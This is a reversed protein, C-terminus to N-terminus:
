EEGDGRMEKPLSALVGYEIMRLREIMRELKMGNLTTELRHRDIASTISNVASGLILLTFVWYWEWKEVKKASEQAMAFLERGVTLASEIGMCAMAVLVVFAFVLAAGAVAFGAALLGKKV